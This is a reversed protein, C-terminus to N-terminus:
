ANNGQEHSDIIRMGIIPQIEKGNTTHDIHHKDSYLKPKLKSAVWKRSDIRLRALNIRETTLEAKNLVQLKDAIELIEDAMLDAQEEKALAYKHRFEENSVIWRRITRPSPLHPNNNCITELGNTTSSIQSLILDEIEINYETPRGIKNEESM